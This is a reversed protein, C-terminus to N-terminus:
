KINVIKNIKLKVKIFDLKGLKYYMLIKQIKRSFIYNVLIKRKKLKLFQMRNNIVLNIILDKVQNITLIDNKFRVLYDIIKVEYNKKSSTLSSNHIRYYYLPKNFHNMQFSKSVRIWYDYDEALRTDPDYDGITEMVKRSYLFCAGIPNGKEFIVSDSLRIYISPSKEDKFKYYDCFVFSCGQIKLFSIMEKIAEKDYYNDDSTWTLYSGSSNKFGTNLANPLGMNENHKIYKIREDQYSKIIESTEDTSGDDVIILEINSYTQDLCSDISQRLYKSGNYTPVVISVKENKM